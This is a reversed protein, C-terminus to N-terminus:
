IEKNLDDPDITRFPFQLFLLIYHLMEPLHPDFNLSFNNLDM